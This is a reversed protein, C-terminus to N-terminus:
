SGDDCVQEIAEVLKIAAAIEEHGALAEQESSYLRQEEGWNGPGFVMTEFILPPGEGFGRDIGTWVTSLFYFGIQDQRLVQYRTDSFLLCWRATDVPEGSRDYLQIM